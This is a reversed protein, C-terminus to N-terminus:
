RTKTVSAIMDHANQITHMWHSMVVLALAFLPKIGNMTTRTARGACVGSGLVIGNTEMTYWCGGVFVLFLGMATPQSFSERFWVIAMVIAFVRKGANWLSHTVATCFGLTIMSFANYLPHWVFVRVNLHCLATTLSPRYFTPNWALLVLYLVLTVLQIFVGSQLSLQTFQVLSGELASKKPTKTATTTTTTTSASATTVDSGKSVISRKNNDNGGDDHQPPPQQQNQQQQRRQLVNRTSLSLGSLIAFLIAPAPASTKRSRILGMAAGTTLLMSSIIGISLLKGEKPILAKTLFLTEFPELLKIIQVVAASGYMFGFNTFISGLGHLISDFPNKFFSFLHHELNFAASSSSSSSSSKQLIFTDHLWLLCCGLLAGALLQVATVLLTTVIMCATDISPVIPMAAEDSNNNVVLKKSLSQMAIGHMGNTIYWLFINGMLLIYRRLMILVHLLLNKYPSEGGHGKNDTDDDDDRDDNDHDASEELTTGLLLTTMEEDKNNKNNSRDSNKVPSSHSSSSSSSAAAAPSTAARSKATAAANSSSNSSSSSVMIQENNTHTIM